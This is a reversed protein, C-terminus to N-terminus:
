TFRLDKNIKYLSAQEKKKLKKKQNIKATNQKIQKKISAMEQYKSKSGYNLTSFLFISVFFLTLIRAM